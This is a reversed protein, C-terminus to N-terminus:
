VFDISLYVFYRSKDFPQQRPHAPSELAPRFVTTSATNELSSSKVIPTVCEPSPASLQSPLVASTGTRGFGLPVSGNIVGFSKPVITRPTVTSSASQIEGM